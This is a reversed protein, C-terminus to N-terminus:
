LMGSDRQNAGSTKCYIVERRQEKRTTHDVERLHPRNKLGMSFLATRNWNKTAAISSYSYTHVNGARDTFTKTAAM